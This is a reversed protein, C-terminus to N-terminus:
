SAPATRSPLSAVWSIACAPGDNSRGHGGARLGHLRSRKVPPEDVPEADRIAAYIEPAPLSRAYELFGELDAPPVDGLIGTLSLMSIDNGLQATESTFRDGTLQMGDGSDGAFRIVVRDLQRVQKTM